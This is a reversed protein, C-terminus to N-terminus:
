NSEGKLSRNANQVISGMSDSYALNIASAYGGTGSPPSFNVTVVCQAGSALVDGCYDYSVGNVM